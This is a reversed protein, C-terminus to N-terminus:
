LRAQGEIIGCRGQWEIHEVPGRWARASIYAKAIRLGVSWDPIPKWPTIGHARLVAVWSRSSERNMRALYSPSTRVPPILHRLALRPSYAISWGEELVTLVLDNDGGSSLSAGSRDTILGRGKMEAVLKLYRGLAEKRVAMGAGIPACPPYVRADPSPKFIIEEDGLDRLALCRDFRRVWSPPDVDFVPLSKGGAAGVNPRREFLALVEALYDAALENDDDVFVLLSGRAQHIGCVRAHTLGLEKEGVVRVSRFGAFDFAGAVSKESANDVIVLEWSEPSLSQGRLALLTRSFRDANPNHTPIIVSLNM